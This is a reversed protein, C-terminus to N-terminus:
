FQSYIFNSAEFGPGYVGLLLVALVGLVVVAVQCLWHQKEIVSRVKIQKYKCVDVALMVLAYVGLLAFNFADIGCAFLSGDTFIEFNHVTAMSILIRVADMLRYARFLVLTSNFLAFTVVVRLLKHLRSQPDIHLARVVAKRLPLLAAGIIQYLGNLLGWAMYNWQAGHWLGSVAFTVLVNFDKRLAGKRNGGLPIYLYDRFWTSLSIHWRRWFEAISQSFYPANFNDILDIGLIKATGMAMVSCGGFDGYLQLAFLLTAIIYFWGEYESEPAYVAAVFLAARDAVVIKLFYGWILLLVGDRLDDFTPRKAASLQPLLSKGRSIPGSVMQPFFSIFLAFDLLDHEAREGRYTDVLYGVAQLTYYSIGKPLLFDFAPPANQVVVHALVSLVSKTLFGLYKFGILPALALVIGAALAGKRPKGDLLRGGLYGVATVFALVPVHAPNWCFYFFYCALLLWVRRVKQPVAFYGLAALPLFLLFQASNFVM